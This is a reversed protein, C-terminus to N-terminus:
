TSDDASSEKIWDLPGAVSEMYETYDDNFCENCWGWNNVYENDDIEKKCRSCNLMIGTSPNSGDNM